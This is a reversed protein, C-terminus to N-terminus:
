EAPANRAAAIRDLAAVRKQEDTSFLRERLAEIQQQKDATALDATEISARQKSYDDYRQQWAAREEDLSKFRAAAEAGFAQTRYAQVDAESAGQARMAAVKAAANTPAMTEDIMTRVEAPLNNKLQALQQQKAAASLGKDQQVKLRQISYSDYAEEPGFFADSAAQGLWEDRLQRRQELAQQLSSVDAEDQRMLADQQADPLQSAAQRYQLYNNLLQWAHLAASAPLQQKLYLAIRGKIASLDEEGITSLFYDFVQRVSASLVLNGAADAALHGDVQTGELSQPLKGLGQGLAVFQAFDQASGPNAASKATAVAAPLAQTADAARTNELQGQEEQGPLLWWMGALVLLVLGVGLMVKKM